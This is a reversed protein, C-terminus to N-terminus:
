RGPAGASLVSETYPTVADDLAIVSLVRTTTRGVLGTSVILDDIAHPDPADVVIFAEHGARNIWAGKVGLGHEGAQAVFTDFATELHRADEESRFACSEASHANIVMYLV